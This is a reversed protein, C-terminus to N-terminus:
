GAKWTRIVRGMDGSHVYQLDGYTAQTAPDSFARAIGSLVASGPYVDDSNLIGIVEGSAMGIGKNMADYIGKDRESIYGAVHPFSRVIEMTRDTSGGDVILHEVNPHDQERISDLTDKVTTESNYTATIISIKM